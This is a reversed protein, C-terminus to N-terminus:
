VQDPDFQSPDLQTPGGQTILGPDVKIYEPTQQKKRMEKLKVSINNRSRTPTKFVRTLDVKRCDWGLAEGM